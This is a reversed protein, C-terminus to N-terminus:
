NSLIFIMVPESVWKKINKRTLLNLMVLSDHIVM